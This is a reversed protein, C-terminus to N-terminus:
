TGKLNIILYKSNTHHYTWHSFVNMFLNFKIKQQKKTLKKSICSKTDQKEDNLQKEDCNNKTSQFMFYDGYHSVTIIKTNKDFNFNNNNINYKKTDIRQWLMVCIFYERAIVLKDWEDFLKSLNQPM